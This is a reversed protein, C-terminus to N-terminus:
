STILKSATSRDHRPVAKRMQEGGGLAENDPKLVLAEVPLGM